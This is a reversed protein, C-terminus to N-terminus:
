TAAHIERLEDDLERDARMRIYETVMLLAAGALLASRIGAGGVWRYPHTTQTLGGTPNVQVQNHAALAVSGLVTVIVAVTIAAEVITCLVLVRGATRPASM